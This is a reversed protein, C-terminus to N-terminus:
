RTPTSYGQGGYTNTNEYVDVGGFVSARSPEGHRGVTKDQDARKHDQKQNPRGNAPDQLQEQEARGRSDCEFVDPIAGEGLLDVFNM